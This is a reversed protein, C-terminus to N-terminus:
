GCGSACMANMGDRLKQISIAGSPVPQARYSFTSDFHLLFTREGDPKYGGISGSGQGWDILWDSNPLRRASGCCFSTSVDPDTISQLFTATGASENIRFRVARPPQSLGTRNDFATVTGDPLLRADHQGGFTYSLPDGIVQLSKPTSTGGLKWVINGTSRRIKYVADVTRFSAIVSDGDPEISNWHVLDYGFGTDAANQIVYPWWRGTEALSIHDQSKWDWVLQGQPTVEQLDANRVDADSSGGYASTDVHSQKVYAGVLHDGNSLLQLDHGDVPTSGVNRMTSVLSGDLRHVEYRSASGRSQFWVVNGNPLVRPGEAATHDWWVPVGQSDFIMAYRNAAPAFAADASFYEPSVPGTRNFTYTPFDNPLCRVHYRYSQSSGAQKATVVFERGTRLSVVDSFDGSRFPHGGVAVQWPPSAHAHVTVAQNDCRVVYDHIGPAYKPFLASIGFNVQPRTPTAGATGGTALATLIGVALAASAIRALHRELGGSMWGM